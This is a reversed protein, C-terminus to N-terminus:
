IKSRTFFVRWLQLEIFNEGNKGQKSKNEPFHEVEQPEKQERVLSLCLFSTQVACATENKGELLSNKTM